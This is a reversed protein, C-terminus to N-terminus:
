TTASLAQKIRQNVKDDLKQILEKSFGMFPRAPIKDTGGNQAKAYPLEVRWVVRNLSTEKTSGNVARRLTGSGVLIPRTKASSKPRAPYKYAKTGPTRRQVEKWPAGSYGQKTFNGVFERVGIAGLEIPLTRPLENLAKSIAAFKAANNNEM